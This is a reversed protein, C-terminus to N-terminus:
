AYPPFFDKARATKLGCDLPSTVGKILIRKSKPFSPIAPFSFVEIDANHDSLGQMLATEFAFPAASPLTRCGSLMKKYETSNCVTGFYLIKM